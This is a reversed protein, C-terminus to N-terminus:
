RRYQVYLPITPASLNAEAFTVAEFATAIGVSENFWWGIGIGMGVYNTDGTGFHNWGDLDGLVMTSPLHLDLVLHEWQRGVQVGFLVAPSLVSSARGGVWASVWNQGWGHGLQFEAEALHGPVAPTFQWDPNTSLDTAGLGPSFGYRVEVATRVSGTTVARRVGVRDTGTYLTSQDGLRAHGLPSGSVVATWSDNIGYEGYVQFVQDVYKEGLEVHEGGPGFGANGMVARYGAKAYVGGEPQTWAGAMALNVLFPM